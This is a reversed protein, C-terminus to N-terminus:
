GKIAGVTLGKIFYRQFFPYAFVIPGIAVICMAMRTSEAPFKMTGFALTSLNQQMFQMNMMIRMLLLQLPVINSKNILMLGLWWDNWYQLTIFLTITAIGPLALPVMIRFLIKYDGAGDIKASEEISEPITLFFNRMLFVNWAGLLYPIILAWISDKLHYYRTSLIYWPVMGGNFLMTFFLYFAVKNRYRFGKRSLPYAMLVTFFLSLLTGTVTVILTTLYANLVMSSDKFIITYSLFSAAKPILRYGYDVLANEDTISVSFVLIFPLLCCAAFIGIIMNSVVRGTSGIVDIKKAM